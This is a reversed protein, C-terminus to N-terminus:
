EHRGLDEEQQDHPPHREAAEATEDDGPANFLGTLSLGNCDTSLGRSSHKSEIWGEETYTGALLRM